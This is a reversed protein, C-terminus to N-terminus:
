REAGAIFDLVARNFAEPKEMQPIHGCDEFIQVQAHPLLRRASDLHSIPLIRDQRGWMILTPVKISPVGAQLAALQDPRVGCLSITRRVAQLYAPTQNPVCAIEYFREILDPTIFDRRYSAAELAMRVGRRSPAALLEGLLPVSQLRFTIYISRGFGGPDVLVLSRVRRPHDIAFQLSIAGGLSNGVVHAIEVGQSHLFGALFSALRSGTFEQASAPKDTRGFGLLDPVLVRHRLALAEVNFLWSEACSGLGHVLLVPSGAGEAWYRTRYGLVTTYRDEM